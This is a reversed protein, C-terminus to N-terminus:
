KFKLIFSFKLMHSGSLIFFLFNLKISMYKLCFFAKSKFSTFDFVSMLFDKSHAIEISLFFNAEPSILRGM